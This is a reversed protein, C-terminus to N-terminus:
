VPHVPYDPYSLPPFLTFPYPSSTDSFSSSKRKRKGKKGNVRKGREKRDQGDRNM